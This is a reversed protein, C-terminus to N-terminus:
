LDTADGAEEVLLHLRETFPRQLAAIRIQEDVGLDLLDAVATADRALADHDGVSNVLGSAALDDAQVDALGLGLGEPRLEQAREDGTAEHSHLQGDAVSVGAQLRRNRPHEARWPLAAGHVKKPVESAVSALVLVVREARQDALQERRKVGVFGAPTEAVGDGLQVGPQWLDGRQELVGFVIDQREVRKGGLV